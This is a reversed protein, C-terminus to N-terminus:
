HVPPAQRGRDRYARWDDEVITYLVQDLYQGDRLFARRLVGEQVAGM